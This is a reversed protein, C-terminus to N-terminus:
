NLYITERCVDGADSRRGPCVLTNYWRLQFVIQSPSINSISQALLQGNSLSEVIIQAIEKNDHTAVKEASCGVLTALCGQYDGAVGTYLKRYPSNAQRREALDALVFGATAQQYAAQRYNLATTQLEALGLLGASIIGLTVLVEVLSSGRSFPFLSTSYPSHPM